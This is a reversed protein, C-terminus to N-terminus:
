PARRRHESVVEADEEAPPAPRVRPEEVGGTPELTKLRHLAKALERTQGMYLLELDRYRGIAIIGLYILLAVLAATYVSLAIRWWERAALADALERQYLNTIEDIRRATDLAALREGLMHELPKLLLLQHVDNGLQALGAQVSKPLSQARPLDAMYSELSARHAATPNQYYQQAEIIVRVVLNEAAVLRERQPFDRWAERVLMAISADARTAAAVAARADASAKGFRAVIDAKEVYAKKLDALTTGLSATKAASEAAKLARQIRSPDTDLVASGASVPAHSRALATASDWRADIAKVGALHAVLESLQKVEPSATKVHLVVLLALLVCGIAAMGRRTRALRRLAPVIGEPNVLARPLKVALRLASWESVSIRV